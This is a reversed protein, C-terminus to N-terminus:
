DCYTQAVTASAFHRSKKPNGGDVHDVGRLSGTAKVDNETGNSGV